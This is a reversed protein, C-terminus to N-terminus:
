RWDAKGGHRAALEDSKENGPIKCCRSPVHTASLGGTRRRLEEIFLQKGTAVFVSNKHVQCIGQIANAAYMSDLCLRTTQISM